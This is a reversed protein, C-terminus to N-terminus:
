VPVQEANDVSDAAGAGCATAAVVVGKAVVLLNDVKLFTPWWYDEPVALRVDKLGPKQRCINGLVNQLSKPAAIVDIREGARILKEIERRILVPSGNVKGAVSVGGTDLRAALSASFDLDDQHTKAVILVATEATATSTLDGALVRAADKGLPKQRQYTAVSYYVCLVVLVGLMGYNAAFRSISARSPIRIM